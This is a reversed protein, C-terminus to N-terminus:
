EPDWAMVGFGLTLPEVLQVYYAFPLLDANESYIRTSNSM